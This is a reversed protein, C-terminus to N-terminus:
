FVRKERQEGLGTRRGHRVELGLTHEVHLVGREDPVVVLFWV